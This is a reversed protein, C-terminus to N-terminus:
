TLFVMDMLFFVPFLIGVSWLMYGFFSPMKVGREHCISVTMFNPANGIYTVAGMFVSGMSIAMLTQADTTMLVSADGGALNFFALYTPANDLFASLTGTLWFFFTNNFTGDANTVLAVLSAFAGHHGARLMELVPVICVFIGFFLKAVELIPDWTFHNAERTAKTTLKLSLGALAIFCLDRVISELAFHVNMFTFEVGSQCFGSYLVAGIIGALLLVNVGGEIAFPRPDTPLKFGDAVDKKYCASDILFYILLLLGCCLLWPLILHQATWFFGVGKLFGLFLPPDGLPTLSGGVNAVLFIFFIFTQMKRKREANAEILPRILLMAAGTTGMFNALVAGLALFIVNVIPRGVFSGRVHIGGAVVFLSGVFIIFPVYDALLVHVIADTGTSMGLVACLPIACCLAWFVSVKGFHHHWFNPLFLPCLAISLLIGAFPIAWSLGLASGDIGSAFAPAAAFASLAALALPAASKRAASLLTM